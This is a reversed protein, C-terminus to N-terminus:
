RLVTGLVGNIFRPSTESGYLRAMEVAENAIVAPPTPDDGELSLEALALRLIARDIPDIREVPRAPALESIRADLALRDTEVAEVLSAAFARYQEPLDDREAIQDVAARAPHGTSEAEYLAQVAAARAGRRRPPVPPDTESDPRMHILGPTRPSLIEVDPDNEASESNQRSVDQRTNNGPSYNEPDEGGPERPAGIM